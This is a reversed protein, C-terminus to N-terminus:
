GRAAVALLGRETLIADLRRDHDEAPVRLVEQV